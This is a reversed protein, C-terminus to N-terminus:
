KLTIEYIKYRGLNGDLLLLDITIATVRHNQNTTLVVLIANNSGYPIYLSRLILIVNRYFKGKQFIEFLNFM